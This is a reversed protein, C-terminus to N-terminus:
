SFFSAAKEGKWDCLVTLVIFSSLSEGDSIMGISFNDRTLRLGRFRIASVVPACFDFPLFLCRLFFVSMGMGEKEGM